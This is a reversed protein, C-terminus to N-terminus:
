QIIVKKSGLTQGDAVLRAFFIGRAAATGADTTGDWTARFTGAAADQDVLTRVMRGQIDFVRLTVKSTRPISYMMAARSGAVGSLIRLSETSPAGAAEAARSQRDDHFRAGAHQELHHAHNLPNQPPAVYPFYPLFPM